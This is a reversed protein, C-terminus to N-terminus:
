KEGYKGGLEDLKIILEKLTVTHDNLVTSLGQLEHRWDEQDKRNQAWILLCMAIPFGVTTILEAMNM